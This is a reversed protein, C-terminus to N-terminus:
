YWGLGLHAFCSTGMKQRRRMLGNGQRHLKAKRAGRSIAATAEFAAQGAAALVDSRFAVGQFVRRGLALGARFHSVLERLLM